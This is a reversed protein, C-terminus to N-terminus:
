LWRLVGKMLEEKEIKRLWLADERSLEALLDDRIQTLRQKKSEYMALAADALKAYNRMQWGKYGADTIRGRADLEITLTEGERLVRDDSWHWRYRWLYRGSHKAGGDLRTSNFQIDPDIEAAILTGGGPLGYRHDSGYATISDFE